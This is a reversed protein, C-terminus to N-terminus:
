GTCLQVQDDSSVELRGSTLNEVEVGAPSVDISRPPSVVGDRELTLEVVGPEVAVLTSGSALARPVGPQLPECTSGAPGERVDVGLQLEVSRLVSEDFAVPHLRGDRTFAILDDMTVDPARLTDPREGGDFIEPENEAVWQAASLRARSEGELARQAQAAVFLVAGNYAAVALIVLVTATRATRGRERIAVSVVLAILPMTLVIVLYAYRESSATEIGLNMRSYATAAAFVLSGIAMAVAPLPRAAAWRLHLASWAVLGFALVVGFGDIPFLRDYGAAYMEAMYRPVGVAVDALGDARGVAIQFRGALVYWGLYIGVPLIFIAVSRWVGIRAIAVIGTAVLAPIATGSCMLSLLALTGAAVLRWVATSGDLLLLMALLALLVAGIFGTQFAWWINEAGAGLLMLLISASTAVWAAVGAKLMLRWLVHVLALHLGLEIALFPSYSDLGFTDRLAIFLAFPLTSWHGVHPAWLLHEQSPVLFAWDDFYFWQTRGAAFLAVACLALAAYHTTRPTVFRRLVDGISPNRGARAGGADVPHAEVDIASESM